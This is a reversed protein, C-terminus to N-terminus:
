AGIGQSPASAHIAQTMAKLTQEVLSTAEDAQECSIFLPHWAKQEYDHWLRFRYTMTQRQESHPRRDVQLEFDAILLDSQHEIQTRLRDASRALWQRYRENDRRSCCSDDLIRQANGIRTSAICFQGHLQDAMKWRPPIFDSQRPMACRSGGSSAAAVRQTDTPSPRSSLARSFTHKGGDSLARVLGTVAERLTAAGGPVSSPGVPVAGPFVEMTEQWDVYRAPAAREGETLNGEAFHIPTDLDWASQHQIRSTKQTTAKTASIVSAQKLRDAVILYMIVACVAVSGGMSRWLTM